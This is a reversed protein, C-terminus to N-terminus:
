QRHLSAARVIRTPAIPAISHPALEEGSDEVGRLMGDHMEWFDNWGILGRNIGSQNSILIVAVHHRNLLSLAQLADPYFRYEHINKVYDPRNENIVGDRDLLVFKQTEPNNSPNPSDLWVLMKQRDM